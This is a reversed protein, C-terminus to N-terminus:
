AFGGSRAMELMVGKGKAPQKTIKARGTEDQITLVANTIESTSSESREVRYGRGEALHPRPQQAAAQPGHRGAREAARLPPLHYSIPVVTMPKPNHGARLGGFGGKKVPVPPAGKPPNKAWREAQERQEAGTIKAWIEELLKFGVMSKMGDIIGQIIAKGIALAKQGFSLKADDLIGRIRAMMDDYAKVVGAITKGVESLFAGIAKFLWGFTFAMAAGLAGVAVSIVAIMGALRGLGAAIESTRKSTSDDKGAAFLDGFAEATEAVTDKFEETFSEILPTIKKVFDEVKLGILEKNVDIWRIWNQVLARLPGGNTKYLSTFVGDVASKLLTIDGKLNDMRLEAMAKAAGASGRISKTLEDFKGSLLMDKLNAAAKQGRLGVLDAFFAIQDLNGGSKKAAKGMNGLVEGLPLMNGAADKFTVGWKKMKATIDATPKAIKTLMTNLSSGAVSADLGVDQLGAVAAVVDELPVNLQRATASVNRMSEGLSGITSNTISSAKALVDAVRTTESAELGMGKLVNSVHGTTEALDMGAAAAANLVGEIGTLIDKEKFGARAMLEMGSAVETATFKTSRGLQIAKDELAKIQATSKLMVAGVASMGEEFDAGTKIVKYGVAGIAAGAIGAYVGVQRLGSVAGSVARGMGDMGTKLSRTFRKARREMKRVPATFHDVAKFIASISFRGAM